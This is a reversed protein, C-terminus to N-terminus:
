QLEWYEYVVLSNNEISIRLKGEIQSRLSQLQNVIRNKERFNKFPIAGVRHVKSLKSM